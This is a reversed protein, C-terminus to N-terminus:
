CITGDSSDGRAENKSINIKEEESDVTTNLIRRTREKTQIM